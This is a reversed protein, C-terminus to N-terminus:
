FNGAAYDKPYTRRVWDAVGSHDNVQRCVRRVNPFPALLDTPLHDITGSTLWGFLRWMAIDAITLSDGVFWDGTNRDLQEELFGIKRPLPGAALDLRMQKKKAEDKEANAPGLLVTIDTAMDIVQDVLAADVMNDAPYLGSLKGCIRSIGGTQAISQGDVVLCPIQRYPILTGDRLRGTEKAELFEDRGIRRDTFDVNGLHLAIRGIEARWFPFDLYIFTLAV